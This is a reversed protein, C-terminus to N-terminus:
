NARALVQAILEDSDIEVLHYYIQGAVGKAAANGAGLIDLHIEPDTVIIGNGDGDTLDHIKDLEAMELIEGVSTVTIGRTVHRRSHITRANEIGLQATPAAGEVLEYEVSNNQGAEVDPIDLQDVIKMIEAGIVKSNSGAVRVQISTVGSLGVTETSFTNAGTEALNFGFRIPNETIRRAMVQFPGDLRPHLWQRSSGLLTLRHLLGLSTVLVIGDSRQGVAWIARRTM